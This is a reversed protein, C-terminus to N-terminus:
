ASNSWSPTERSRSVYKVSTGGSARIPQPPRPPGGEFEARRIHALQPRARMSQRRVRHRADRRRQFSRTARPRLPGQTRRRAPDFKQDGGVRVKEAHVRTPDRLPFAMGSDDDALLVGVQLAKEAVKPVCQLSAVASLEAVLEDPDRLSPLARGVWLRSERLRARNPRSAASRHLM